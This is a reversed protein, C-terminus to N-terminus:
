PTARSPGALRQADIDFAANSWRDSDKVDPLKRSARSAQAWRSRARPPPPHPPPSHAPPPPPPPPPPAGIKLPAMKACPKEVVLARLRGNAARASTARVGRARCAHRLHYRRWRLAATPTHAVYDHVADPPADQCFREQNSIAGRCASPISSHARVDGFRILISIPSQSADYQPAHPQWLRVRRAGARTGGGGREPPGRFARTRRGQLFDAVILFGPYDHHASVALAFALRARSLV